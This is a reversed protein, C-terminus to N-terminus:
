QGPSTQLGQMAAAKGEAIRAQYSQGLQAAEGVFPNNNEAESFSRLAERMRGLKLQEEGLEVYLSFPAASREVAKQLIEAAEAHRGQEQYLEALTRANLESFNLQLALLFEEEAERVRNLYQLSLGKLYHLESSPNYINEALELQRLAAQTEGLVIMISASNLYYNFRDALARAGGGAPPTTFPVDQCRIRLKEVVPAPTNASRIFIAARTDLYVPVWGRSSCLRDLNALGSGVTRDVSIFVTNIDRAEAESTWLPSDLPESTL